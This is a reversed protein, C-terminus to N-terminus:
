RPKHLKQLALQAAPPASQAIRVLENAPVTNAERVVKGLHKRLNMQFMRYFDELEHRNFRELPDALGSQAAAWDILSGGTGDFRYLSLTAELRKAPTSFPDRANEPLKTMIDLIERHGASAIPFPAHHEEIKPKLAGAVQTAAEIPAFATSI